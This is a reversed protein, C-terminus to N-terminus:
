PINLLKHLQLSLAWRPHEKIYNICNAITAANRSEIEAPSAETSAPSHDCPQLYLHNAGATEMLPIRSDLAPNDHFLLKIEDIRGQPLAGTKPSCTIWDINQPVPLTGNTEIQVFYGAQHFRGIIDENLQMAPEGGTIVAHRTPYVSIAQLIEDVSMPTSASHDTDCFACRLNCGSLRIFVAPTGSFYGEGQLSYFIENINLQM